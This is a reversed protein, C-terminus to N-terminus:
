DTICRSFENKLHEAKGMAGWELYLHFSRQLLPSASAFDNLRLMHRAARETAIAEEHLLQEKRAVSIAILYKAYARKSDGKVSAEEAQLLYLRATLNHPSDLSWKEIMEICRRSRAICRSKERGVSTAALALSVLATWYSVACLDFGAMPHQFLRECQSIMGFALAYDAFLFALITRNFCMEFMNMANTQLALTTTVDFRLQGTASVLDHEHGMLNRIFQSFPRVLALAGEQRQLVMVDRFSQLEEDIFPLPLGADILNFCYLSANLMSYEIDGYELGIWISRKLPEQSERFPRRWPSVCGYHGAYVRPMWALSGSSKFRELLVLSLCGFRYGEDVDGGSSCLLMGYTSFAPSSLASLGGELTLRVMRITLIAALYPRCLHAYLFLFGMMKMCALKDTDKMLQLRLIAENTKANTLRKIKKTEREVQRGIPHAPVPKGLKKLVDLGLVIADEMKGMTGLTFVETCYARLKEQFCQANDFVSSTLAQVREFDATCYNVEAATSFLALGLDYHDTWLEDGLLWIGLELYLSSTPFSSAAVAKEATLLCLEAVANKEEKNRIQEAGLRYQNMVVFIYRIFEDASLNRRLKRGISLHSSRKKDKEIISYAANLFADHVFLYQELLSDYVLFGLESALFLHKSVCTGFVRDLILKDLTSGLCSAVKMVDLLPSPLQMMRELILGSINYGEMEQYIGEEESVVWRM